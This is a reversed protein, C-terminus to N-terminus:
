LHSKFVIFMEKSNLLEPKDELFEELWIRLELLEYPLLQKIAKQIEKTFLEYSFSVKTLINKTYELNKNEM